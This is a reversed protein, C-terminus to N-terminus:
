LLLFTFRTSAGSLPGDVSVRKLCLSEEFTISGIASCVAPYSNKLGLASHVDGARITVSHAQSARAPDVYQKKCYDRIRDAQTM